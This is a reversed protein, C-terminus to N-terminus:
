VQQIQCSLRTQAVQQNCDIFNYEVIKSSALPVFRIQKPSYRNPLSRFRRFYEPKIATFVLSKKPM